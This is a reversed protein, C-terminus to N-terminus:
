CVGRFDPDLTGVTAHICNKAHGSRPTIRGYVGEPYIMILDLYILNQTYPLIVSDHPAFLDLGASMPTARRPLIGRPTVLAVQLIEPKTEMESGRNMTLLYSRLM